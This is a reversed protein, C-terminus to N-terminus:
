RLGLVDQMDYLGPGRKELWQAARLAGDAFTRRSEAKHTIEVREGPAAFMVTHDGVIEGARVVAFGIGGDKRPGNRDAPLALQELTAGRAAAIVEGMRKATGSPSDVKHRHHAESIEVDVSPGLVRAAIDLLRLCLNVGVSMNPAQVVAIKRAADAIRERGSADFGTTGIVIKKGAKVCYAVHALTAEPRTFDILVDFDRATLDASIPVGLSAIGSRVGADSGLAPSGSHEIAATLKLNSVDASAEILTRGMRGAAGAIAIRTM